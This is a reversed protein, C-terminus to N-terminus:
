FLEGSKLEDILERIPKGSIKDKYYVIEDMIMRDIAAIGLLEVPAKDDTLIFGNDEVPELRQIIREALADLSEDTIADSNEIFRDRVDYSDSALLVRNTGTRLSYSYGFVSKITGCLWDNIGGPNSTYMNMNVVICGDDSLHDKVENFFEVSSMQFPITIDQYADVMIVDYKRDSSELYARGDYCVTNINDSLDFYEYAADIIKSDIEVGTYDGAGFYTECQSLFTGSGMGLVLIDLPRELAGATIPASLAYDYYMGTLGPSKMKVSQVGFLVNTSLIVCDSDDEVRLYNYISEDEYLINDQWFANSINRSYYCGALALVAVFLMVINGASIKKKESGAQKEARRIFVFYIITIAFLLSAFVFFTLSTGLAPITVFTPLFTGIISGITNLAEIIGVTKGTDNKDRLAFRVLNPTVMGLILLPFVFVLICSTLAAWVLYNHTVFMALLFAVVLIVYKGFLPILATWLAAIFLWTFLRKPDGHRDAMRGGLLNGVAMAIMIVGIVITWVIQSSSFYPALLRQAGIEIAMVSMGSFFATIFLFWKYKM